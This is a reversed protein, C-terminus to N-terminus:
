TSEDISLAFHFSAMYAELTISSGEGAMSGWFAFQWPYVGVTEDGTERVCM